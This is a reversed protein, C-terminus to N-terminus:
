PAERHEGRHREEYADWDLPAGDASRQDMRTIFETLHADLARAGMPLARAQFAVARIMAEEREEPLDIPRAGRMWDWAALAELRLSETLKVTGKSTYPMLLTIPSVDFAAALAVLDDVDIRRKGQELRHLGSSLIPKGARSMEESLEALSWRRETRLRKVNDVVHASIPGRPVENTAM